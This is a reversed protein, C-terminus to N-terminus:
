SGYRRILHGFVPRDIRGHEFDARDEFNENGLFAELAARTAPDYSGSAPGVYYGLRTLLAQLRIAVEGEILLEDEPPSKGFYLHHLELLGALRHVPDPDDDVRYDLWIDDFGGYGAKPKAALLAASQRGRRDGGAHDGALLAAMLREALDGATHMFAEVMAEVVQPGALINGQVAFGEGVTGGAWALCKEGTFTAAREHMDVIGVQRHDRDPDSALLIDLTEEASKGEGLLALGRPGYSTNAYSQTAVAGGVAVWPVRAGVAPFKSAVAVGWAQQALDCAVISFTASRIM